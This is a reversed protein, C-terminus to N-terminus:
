DEEKVGLIGHLAEEDAEGKIWETIRRIFIGGVQM